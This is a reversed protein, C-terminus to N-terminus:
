GAIVRVTQSEEFAPEAPHQIQQAAPVQQQPSIRVVAAGPMMRQRRLSLLVTVYGGIVVDVAISAWLWAVSGTVTAIALTVAGAVLLGILIRTRRAQAHRRVYDAGDPSTASVTALVQKTRAFDATTSRPAESRQDFFSPLLFAAWLGGILIFLVILM